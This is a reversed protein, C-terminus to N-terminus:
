EHHIDCKFGSRQTSNQQIDYHQIDNHQNYNHQIDNHQTDHCGLASEFSKLIFLSRFILSLIRLDGYYSKKNEDNM